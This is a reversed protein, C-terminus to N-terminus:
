KVIWRLKLLEGRRDYLQITEDLFYQSYSTIDWASPQAYSILQLAIDSTKAHNSSVPTDRECIITETM